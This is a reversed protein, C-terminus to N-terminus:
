LFMVHMRYDFPKFNKLLEEIFAPNDQYFNLFNDKREQLTGGPFIASKIKEIQGLADLHKQKEARVLKKEAKEIRNIAQTALAELHKVLTPDVERAQTSMQSYTEKIAETNASFSLNKRSNKSLWEKELELVSKFLDATNMEVKEKLRQINQPIIVGFNRPMLLPFPMEFHGFMNKLQLWYVLESPGGIYALNPLIIEQYLPRLVVNPSFREPNTNILNRIESESFHIDTDVVSFGSESKEIRSRVSEYLYFFNIERANIQTKYGLAELGKTDKDVFHQASHEFLDNTIVPALEKKLEASDADVVVLGQDGFLAHVYARCADALTKNELYATEFISVDGPLQSLLDKLGAPDFRGVAGTQSSEWQYKKGFLHFHNIEAFDHDESAMWYVPVFDYDPYKTKLEKAANIATLIKYIFYLPGTFINLQHGTTVTFTKDSLLSNLNTTVADGISLGAYQEKLTKVLTQRKDSTFHRQAIQSEFSKLDPSATYFPRLESKGQIYDLFFSSFCDTEDLAIKDTHM